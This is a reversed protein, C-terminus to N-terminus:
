IPLSSVRLSSERGADQYIPLYFLFSFSSRKFILFCPEAIRLSNSTLIRQFSLSDSAVCHLNVTDRPHLSPSESLLFRHLPVPIPYFATTRNDFLGKNFSLLLTDFATPDWHPNIGRRLLTSFFTAM